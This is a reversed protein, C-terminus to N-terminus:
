SPSVSLSHIIPRLHHDPHIANEPNLAPPLSWARTRLANPSPREWSRAGLQPEPVPFPWTHVPVPLCLHFGPATLVHTNRCGSPTFKFPPAWKLALRTPCDRTPPLLARSPCAPSSLQPSGLVLVTERVGQAPPLSSVRLHDSRVRGHLAKPSTQVDWSKVCVSPTQSGIPVSESVGERPLPSGSFM